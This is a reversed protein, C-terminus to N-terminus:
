TKTIEAGFGLVLVVENYHFLRFEWLRSDSKCYTALRLGWSPLVANKPCKKALFFWFSLVGGVGTATGGWQFDPLFIPKSSPGMAFLAMNLWFIGLFHRKAIRRTVYQLDSELNHFNLNKWQLSTTNTKPNKALIWFRCKKVSFIGNKVIPQSRGNLMAKKHDWFEPNTGFMWFKALFKLEM